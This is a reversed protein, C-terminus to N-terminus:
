GVRWAAVAQDRPVRGLGNATPAIAHQADLCVALLRRRGQAILMVDGQVAEAPTCAPGLACTAAQHLGGLRRVVRSAQLPSRHARLGRAPDAGTIARVAGAAFLACDNSGWAMPMCARSTVYADFRLHWDPLRSLRTM